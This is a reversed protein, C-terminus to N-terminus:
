SVATFTAVLDRRAAELRRVAAVEDDKTTTTGKLLVLSVDNLLGDRPLLTYLPPTTNKKLPHFDNHFSQHVHFLLDAFLGISHPTLLATAHTTFVIDQDIPCNLRFVVDYGSPKLAEQLNALFKFSNNQPKFRFGHLTQAVVVLRAVPPQPLWTALWDWYFGPAAYSKAISRRHWDSAYLCSKDGCLNFVDGARVHIVFDSPKPKEYHPFEKITEVLPNVPDRRPPDCTPSVPVPGEKACQCMEATSKRTLRTVYRCFFPDDMACVDCIEQWSNSFQAVSLGIKSRRKRNQYHRKASAMAADYGTWANRSRTCPWEEDAAITTVVFLLGEWSFSSLM